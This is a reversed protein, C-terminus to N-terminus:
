EGVKKKKKKAVKPATGSDLRSMSSFSLNAARFSFLVMPALDVLLAAVQAKLTNPM